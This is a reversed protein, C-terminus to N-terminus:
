NGSQAPVVDFTGNTRVYIISEVEADSSIQHVAEGTSSFYSGPDLTQTDSNDILEGTYGYGMASAGFGSVSLAGGYTANSGPLARGDDYVLLKFSKDEAADDLGLPRKLAANVDHGGVLRQEGMVAGRERSQSLFV